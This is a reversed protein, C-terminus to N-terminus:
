SLTICKWGEVWSCLYYTSTASDLAVIPKNSVAFGDTPLSAKDYVYEDCYTHAGAILYKGAVAGIVINGEIDNYDATNLEKVGYQMTPTSQIDVIKNHKVSIRGIRDLVIGSDLPNGISTAGNQYNANWIQNGLILGHLETYSDAFVYISSQYIDILTVGMIVFRKAYSGYVVIGRLCNYITGGIVKNGIGDIEIGITNSIGGIEPDIIRVDEAVASVIGKGNIDRIKPRIIEACIVNGSIYIGGGIKYDRNDGIVVDIIQPPNHCLDVLSQPSIAFVFYSSSITVSANFRGGIWKFGLPNTIKIAHNTNFSIIFSANRADVVIAKDIVLQRGLEFEGTLVISDGVEIAKEIVDTHDTSKTITNGNRDVAVAYEGERYVIVDAIFDPHGPSVIREVSPVMYAEAVKPILAGIGLSVAGVGLTKLFERRKHQRTM